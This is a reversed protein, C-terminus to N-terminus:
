ATPVQVVEVVARVGQTQARLVAPVAQVLFSEEVAVAVAAVETVAPDLFEHFVQVEEVAQEEVARRLLQSALPLRIRLVM